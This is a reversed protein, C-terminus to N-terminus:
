LRMCSSRSCTWHHPLPCSKQAIWLSAARKFPQLLAERFSKKELSFLWLDRLREEYSVYELRRIMETTEEPSVGASGCRDQVPSGWFQVCHESHPRVFTSFLTLITDEAQQGSRKQHLRPYPQSEPSCAWMALEQGIKLKGPDWLRGRYGIKLGNVRCDTRTSPIAGAWTYPRASARVLGQEACPSCPQM